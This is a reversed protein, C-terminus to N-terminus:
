MTASIKLKAATKLVIHPETRFHKKRVNSNKSCLLGGTIYQKVESAAFGPLRVVLEDQGGAITIGREQPLTAHYLTVPTDVTKEFVLSFGQNSIAPTRMLTEGSICFFSIMQKNDKQSCYSTTTYSLPTCITINPSSNGVARLGSKLLHLHNVQQAVHDRMVENTEYLGDVTKIMWASARKAFVLTPVSLKLAMYVQPGYLDLAGPNNHVEKTAEQRGFEVQQRMHPKLNGNKDCDYRTFQPETELNPKPLPLQCSMAKLKITKARATYLIPKAASNEFEPTIAAPCAEMTFQFFRPCETEIELNTVNQNIDDIMEPFEPAMYYWLNPRAAFKNVLALFPPKELTHRM